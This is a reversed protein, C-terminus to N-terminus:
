KKAWKECMKYHGKAAEGASAYRISDVELGDLSPLGCNGCRDSCQPKGAKFVFTEYFSKEWAGLTELDWKDKAERKPLEGVTSILYKGVKTAMHFRCRDGLIFHAAHGYWKWKDKTTM